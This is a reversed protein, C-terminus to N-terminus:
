WILHDRIFFLGITLLILVYFVVLLYGLTYPDLGRLTRWIFDKLRKM